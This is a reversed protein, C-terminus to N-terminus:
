RPDPATSVVLDFRAPPRVRTFYHQEAADWRAFWAEDLPSDRAVVRRRREEAPADVLIALRVLDELQPRTSYAGDLIVVSSPKCTKMTPLLGGGENWDYPHWMATQGGLLPELAEARLRRWDMCQDANAAPSRADWEAATGGAYFDDGDVVTAALEKAVAATLTSKGAGSGGDLAVLLPYGRGTVRQQVAAVIADAARASSSNATVIRDHSPL